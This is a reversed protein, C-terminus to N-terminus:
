GTTTTPPTTTTTSSTTVTTSTSVVVTTSIKQSSKSATPPLFEFVFAAVMGVTAIVALVKAGVSWRRGPTTDETPPEPPEVDPPPGYRPM